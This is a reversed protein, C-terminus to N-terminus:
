QKQPDPHSATLLCPTLVSHKGNLRIANLALPSMRKAGDPMKIDNSDM